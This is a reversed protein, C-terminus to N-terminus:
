FAGDDTAPAAAPEVAAAGRAGKKGAPAAKGPKAPAAPPEPQNQKRMWDLLEERHAEVFSVYEDGSPLADAGPGPVYDDFAIRGPGSGTKAGVDGIGRFDNLLDSLCSKALSPVGDLAYVGFSHFLQSGPLIGETNMLMQVGDAAEFDRHVQRVGLRLQTLDDAPKLSAHFDEYSVGAGMVRHLQWANERCVLVVDHVRLMGSMIQGDICGAVLAWPPCLDRARRRAAVDIRQTDAGAEISGGAFFAQVRDPPLDVAKVGLLGLLRSFLMDRWLGRVANGSMFPVLAVSGDIPSVQRQRRFMSVNGSKEDAGHAIPSRCTWVAHYARPAIMEAPLRPRWAKSTPEAPRQEFLDEEGDVREQAFTVFFTANEHVLLRLHEFDIWRVLVDWRVRRVDDLVTGESKPDPVDDTPAGAPVFREPMVASAPWRHREGETLSMEFRSALARVWGLTSRESVALPLLSASMEEAIGRRRGSQFADWDIRHWLARLLYALWARTTELHVPTKNM